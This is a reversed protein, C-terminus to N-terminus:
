EVVTDITLSVREQEGVVVTEAQAQLDGARAVAGGSQSVRALIEVKAQGSLKRGPMMADADDLTVTLPLDRVQRKVVALPMPPGDVARAYIYVTDDPQARDRVSDALSVHVKIAEAGVSSANASDSGAAAAVAPMDEKDLAGIAALGKRIRQALPSNPGQQALLTQWRKKAVAYHGREIAVLGGLWLARANHPAKALAKEILKAPRGLLSPRARTAALARAYALLVAPTDGLLRRARSLAHIAKQPRGMVTYSRGLMLWGRGNNPHEELREALRQVMARVHDPGTGPSGFVAKPTGVVTYLGIAVVPVLLAVVGAPWIVSRRSGADEADTTGGGTDALLQQDLEAQLRQYEADTVLGAEHERELEEQRERYLAVDVRDHSQGGHQAGRMLPLVIVAVAFVIMAVVGIWFVLNM